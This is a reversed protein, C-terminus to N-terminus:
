GRGWRFRRGWRSRASPTPPPARGRGSRRDLGCSFAGVLRRGSQRTPHPRAPRSGSGGRLPGLASWLSVPDGHVVDPRRRGRVRANRAFSVTTAEFPRSARVLAPPSGQHERRVPRSWIATGRQGPQPSTADPHDSPVDREQLHCCDGVAPAGGVVAAEGAEEALRVVCCDGEAGKASARRAPGRPPQGARSAAGATMAATVARPARVCWTSPSPVTEVLLLRSEPVSHVQQDVGCGRTFSGVSSRVGTHPCATRGRTFETAPRFTGPPASKWGRTPPCPM